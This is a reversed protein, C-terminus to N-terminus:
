RGLGRLGGSILVNIEYLIQPGALGGPCALYNSTWEPEFKEKFARLGEFNYFHEGHEFVFSGIRNWIPALQRSEIGSFPAAGLSFWQYKESAGWLMLEAFLADMAFGPGDPRYRMLDLSLEHKNAGLFLNAFAIIEGTPSKLIATDFNAIYAEDFAGLSFAKEEGQKSELWADSIARLAHMCGALKEAPIVEFVFGDRAARNRAQRLGKRKAGELSFGQLDVRAVEGIKLISLGLDLYTPLYTPSVSYFACRRGRTDALERLRWM